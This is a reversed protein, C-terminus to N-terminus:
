LGFWAYGNIADKLVMVILFGSCIIMTVQILIPKETTDLIRITLFLHV